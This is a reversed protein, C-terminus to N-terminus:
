REHGIEERGWANDAPTLAAASGTEGANVGTDLIVEVPDFVVSRVGTVAPPASRATTPM